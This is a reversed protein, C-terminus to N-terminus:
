LYSEVFMDSTQNKSAWKIRETIWDKVTSTPALGKLLEISQEFFKPTLSSLSTSYLKGDRIAKEVPGTIEIIEDQTRFAALDVLNALLLGWNIVNDPFVTGLPMRFEITGRYFWSHVNIARYREGGTKTRRASAVKDKHASGYLKELIAKRYRVIKKRENPEDLLAVDAQHISALYNPAWYQCYRGNRRFPPLMQTMGAEVCACLRLLRSLGLYGLDQADVHTHCGARSNVYAKADQLASCIDKIQALWFDGSAPHTNIEFGGDPLSGDGVIAGQWSRVTDGVRGHKQTVGCIEMEAAVLRQSPNLTRHESKIARYRNLNIPCRFHEVSRRTSGHQCCGCGMDRMGYGCRTCLMSKHSHPANCHRCAWCTCCDRCLGCAGCGNLVLLSGCTRCTKCDCCDLCFTCCHLYDQGVPKLCGSCVTAIDTEVPVVAAKVPMMRSSIVLRASM